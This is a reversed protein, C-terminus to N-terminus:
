ARAREEKTPQHKLQRKEAWASPLSVYQVTPTTLVYDGLHLGRTGERTHGASRVSAISTKMGSGDTPLGGPAPPVLALLRGETHKRPLPASRTVFGAEATCQSNSGPLSNSTESRLKMVPFFSCPMQMVAQQSTLHPLTQLASRRAGFPPM